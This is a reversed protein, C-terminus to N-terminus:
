RRTPPPAARPIPPQGRPDHQRQQQQRKLFFARSKQKEEERIESLSTLLDEMTPRSAPAPSWCAEVLRMLRKRTHLRPECALPDPWGLREGNPVNYLIYNYGSKGHQAMKEEWPEILTILEWLLVGFSFVDAPKGVEQCLLTEPAQYLISLYTDSQLKSCGEKLKRAGDFDAVKAQLYEIDNGANGRTWGIALLINSSKLDRHLYSSCHIFAMGAAIQCALELRVDWM